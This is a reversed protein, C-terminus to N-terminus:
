RTYVVKSMRKRVVLLVGMALVLFSGVAVFIVTGTGGTSPLEAGTNNEIVVTATDNTMTTTNNRATIVVEQAETLLNYGAPAAVEKLYYTTESDLGRITYKGGDDVFVTESGGEALRYAGDSDITFTMPEADTNDFPDERYLSFTAGSLPTNTGGIVKDLNFSWTYTTTESSQSTYTANNGYELVATNKNGLGDVVANANVTASYTIEITQGDVLGEEGDIVFTLTQTNNDNSTEAQTTATAGNLSVKADNNYTLGQDLTDKVVYNKAGAQKTVVISYNVVEGIEVDIVDVKGTGDVIDKEITPAANKAEIEIDGVVSDLILKTGLSSDVLYFGDAVNNFEATTEGEASDATTPAAVGNAPNLAYALAADAVAIPDYAATKTIAKSIEDISFYTSEKFFKEWKANATYSYSNTAPDADGLDSYTLTAMQWLRYTVNEDESVKKITISGASAPIAMSIALALVIVMALVKKANKM